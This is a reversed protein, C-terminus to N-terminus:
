NLMSAVCKDFYEQRLQPNPEHRIVRTFGWEAIYCRLLEDNGHEALFALMYDLVQRRSRYCWNNSIRGAREQEWHYCAGHVFALNDTHYLLRIHLECDEYYVGERFSFQHQQWYGLRFIKQWVMPQLYYKGVNFNTTGIVPLMQNGRHWLSDLLIIDAAYNLSSLALEYLNSDVWDDHDIFTLYEGRAHSLGRNRAAGPGANAQSFSKFVQPYNTVYYDIIDQTFDTSGDNVVIVEYNALTQQVLSELCRRILAQGNYVCVIISLKPQM